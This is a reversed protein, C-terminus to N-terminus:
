AGKYAHKNIKLTRIKSELTSAPIGLIAAAGQRGSVKGKAQALAAEIQEQETSIRSARGVRRSSQFEHSLWNKDVSFENTDVIILSREIVNQLERVNGPWSYEQLAEISKKRITDIKKGARQAYRNVFYNVLIPIDEKRERLPPLEIPFVNLRYFLDSRFSGAAIASHLDRNTAAIMRVDCRLMETGGVREFEREQLVRLLAIQTELPLDGVEDLFLTGGEALEFRGLRRQVAGTFAGKEHGFLESMILSSPIAACNVGVFSRAGRKSRKHIARAILEKGTGTEGAILVTSDTPAVKAALALVNQLASSTGLVEEFMSTSGIEHRLVINEKYLEDKLARIEGFAKKTVTVDMVTGVFEVENSESTLPRAIVHVHKVSGDPMLLRHEFDFSEGEKANEIVRRVLTLDEPHTRKFIHDVTPKINRDYELIRFTEDSWILEGTSLNWGFSGTHGLAEGQDMYAKRRRLEQVANEQETIDLTNGILRTVKGNEFVPEGTSHMTRQGYKPHRVRYQVDGKVGESFMKRILDALVHRDDAHLVDLWQSLTPIGKDSDFGFNVFTEPSWYDFIGDLRLSWSGMHALREGERLYFENRELESAKEAVRQEARKRDEIDISSGFWKVINGHEDRLPVKRHLLARYSGDARRVRAEIEFPEGSALAARWKQVLTAVDEPHVSETWRWGCVEELSKGLFDLWGRNFYDLYGDPRATHIFAPTTDVARRLANETATSQNNQLSKSAKM